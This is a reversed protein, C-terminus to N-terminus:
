RRGCCRRCARVVAVRGFMQARRRALIWAFYCWWDRTATGPNADADTWFGATRGSRHGRAQRRARGAARNRHWRAASPPRCLSALAMPSGCTLRHDCSPSRAGSRAPFRVVPPVAVQAGQVPARCTLQPRGLGVVRVTVAAPGQPGPCWQAALRPRLWARQAPQRRPTAPGPCRRSQQMARDHQEARRRCLWPRLAPAM